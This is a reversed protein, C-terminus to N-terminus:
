TSLVSTHQKLSKCNSKDTGRSTQRSGSSGQDCGRRRKGVSLPTIPASPSFPSSVTSPSLYTEWQQNFLTWFEDMVRDVLIRQFNDLALGPSDSKDSSTSSQSSSRAMDVSDGSEGDTMGPDVMFYDDRPRQYRPTKFSYNALQSRTPPLEFKISANSGEKTPGRPIHPVEEQEKAADRRELAHTEKTMEDQQMKFDFLRDKVIQVSDKRGQLWAPPQWDMDDEEDSDHDLSTPDPTVAQSSLVAYEESSIEEIIEEEPVDELQETDKLPAHPLKEITKSVQAQKKPKVAPLWKSTARKKPKRMLIVDDDSDSCYQYEHEEDGANALAICQEVLEHFQVKKWGEPTKLGTISKSSLMTTNSSTLTPSEFPFSTPTTDKGLKAVVGQKLLLSSSISHRLMIESLSRKKLIPKKSHRAIEARSMRRGKSKSM